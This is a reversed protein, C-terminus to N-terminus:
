RSDGATDNAHTVHKAADDRWGCGDHAEHGDTHGEPRRCRHNDGWPGPANCIPMLTRPQTNTMPGDLAQLAVISCARHGHQWDTVDDEDRPRLVARVRAIAAEAERLAALNDRSKTEAQEAREEAGRCADLLRAHEGCTTEWAIRNDYDAARDADAQEAAVLPRLLDREHDLFTGQEVRDLLAALLARRHATTTDTM